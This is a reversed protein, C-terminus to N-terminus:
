EHGLLDDINIREDNAPTGLHDAYNGKVFFESDMQLLDDIMDEAVPTVAENIKEVNRRRNKLKAHCSEVVKTMDLQPHVIRLMIM